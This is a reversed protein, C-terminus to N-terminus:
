MDAVHNGQYFLPFIRRNSWHFWHLLKPALERLGTQTFGLAIINYANKIDLFLFVLNDSQRHSDANRDPLRAAIEIRGRSIAVGQQLAVTVVAVGQELPVLVSGVRQGRRHHGPYGM